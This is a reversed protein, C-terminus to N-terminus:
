LNEVADVPYGFNKPHRRLHLLSEDGEAFRSPPSMGATSSSVLSLVAFPQELAAASSSQETVSLVKFSKGTVASSPAMCKSVIRKQAPYRSSDRIVELVDEQSDM